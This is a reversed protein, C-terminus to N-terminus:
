YYYNKSILSNQDVLSQLWLFFYSSKDIADLTVVSVQKVFVAKTM